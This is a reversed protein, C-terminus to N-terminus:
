IVEYSINVFKENSINLTHDFKHKKFNDFDINIIPQTSKHFYFYELKQSNLEFKNKIPNGMFIKLQSIEFESYLDNREIKIPYIKKVKYENQLGIKNEHPSKSNNKSKDGKNNNLKNSNKKNLGYLLNNTDYEYNIYSNNGKSIIPIDKKNVIMNKINDKNRNNNNKENNSLDKSLNSSSKHKSTRDKDITNMAIKTKEENRKTKSLFNIPNDKIKNHLELKSSKRDSKINTENLYVDINHSITKSNNNYRPDLDELLNSEKSILKKSRPYNREYNSDISKYNNKIETKNKKESTLINFNNAQTIKIEKNMNKKPELTYDINRDIKFEKNTKFNNNTINNKLENFSKDTRNSNKLEIQDLKSYILNETNLNEKNKKAHSNSSNYYNNCNSLSTNYLNSISSTSHIYDNSIEGRLDNNFNHNNTTRYTESIVYNEILNNSSTSFDEKINKEKFNSKNKQEDFKKYKDAYYMEREQTNESNYINDKYPKKNSNNTNKNIIEIDEVHEKDNPNITLKM